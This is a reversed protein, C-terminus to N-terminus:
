QLVTITGVVSYDKSCYYKYYGPQDLSISFTDGAELLHTGASSMIQGQEDVQEIVLIRDVGGLNIWAIRMGSQVEMSPCYDQTIQVSIEPSMEPSAVAFSQTCALMAMFLVGFFYLITIKNNMM